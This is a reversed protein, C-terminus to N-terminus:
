RRRLSRKSKVYGVKKKGASVSTPTKKATPTFSAARPKAKAVVSKAKYPAIKVTATKKPAKKKPAAKKPAVAAPSGAAKASKAKQIKSQLAIGGAAGVAAAAGYPNVKPMRKATTKAVKAAKTAGASAVGKFANAKAKVKGLSRPIGARSLASEVGSKSISKAKKIKGYSKAGGKILRIGGTIAAKALSLKSM